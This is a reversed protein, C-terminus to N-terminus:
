SSRMLVIKKEPCNTPKKAEESIPSITLDLIKITPPRIRVKNPASMTTKLPYIHIPTKPMNRKVVPGVTAKLKVYMKM